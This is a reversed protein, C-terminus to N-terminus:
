TEGGEDESIEQMVMTDQSDVGAAQEAARIADCIRLEEIRDYNGEGPGQGQRIDMCTYNVGNRYAKIAAEVAVPNDTLSM